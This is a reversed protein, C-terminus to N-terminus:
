VNSAVINTEKNKKMGKEGTVRSALLPNKSEIPVVREIKKQSIALSPSPLNTNGLSRKINNAPAIGSTNKIEDNKEGDKYMERKPLPKSSPVKPEIRISKIINKKDATEKWVSFCRQYKMPEIKKAPKTSATKWIILKNMPNSLIIGPIICPTEAPLKTPLQFTNARNNPSRTIREKNVRSNKFDFPNKKTACYKM